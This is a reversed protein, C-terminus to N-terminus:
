AAKPATPMGNLEFWFRSGVGKDSEVGVTGGMREIAKKVIALGVGTGAFEDSRHLRQFLAFIKQQQEPPIGIGNDEVWVRVRNGGNVPEARVTISPERGAPVFKLANGLLNSLVQTLLASNGLVVPLPRRVHICAAAEQFQPYQDVLDRVLTDLNVRQLDAENMSVRSYSLVDTILTDLRSASSMIRGLYNLGTEDLREGYEERLVHAFSRMSRLPARMDHVISYSFTELQQVTDRLQATREAVIRELRQSALKQEHVDTCSGVWERVSGDTNQLPVARAFFHRYEGSAVHFLRGHSQYTSSARRAESWLRQVEARDDPHLANVWGFGRYEEWAQGTYKAWAPQPSAFAGEADTTWPVDTVVSVLLRYREESSRLAAEARKRATIDQVEIVTGVTRGTHDRRPSATFAVDYFHGDKHVFVDEGKMQNRTPFAQDIPCESLPYPSGDPRTHHIINHLAGGRARVEDFTFGTLEEAAPNMFVCRQQDDMIFLSTTANDTISQLLRTEEALREEALRRETIDTAQVIFLEVEGKRNRVATVAADAFRVAGEATAFTDVSLIPGSSRAAEELRKPWNRRMEPLSSWFPTEWFIKGEVQQRSIGTAHLPLENIELVTGEPSLIAVFQFQQNFVARFRRESKRTKALLREQEELISRLQYQRSRARLAARLASVLSVHRVPREILTINGHPAFTNLLAQGAEETEAASTILLVPVDSWPPQNAMAEVVCELTDPSLAEEALLWAGAGEAFERVLEPCDRCVAGTLGAQQLVLLANAADDGTPTLILVRESNNAGENV